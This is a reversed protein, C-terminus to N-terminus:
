EIRIWRRFLKLRALGRLVTRVPAPARLWRSEVFILVWNLRERLALRWLLRRSPGSM